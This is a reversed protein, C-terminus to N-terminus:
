EKFIYEAGYKDIYYVTLSKDSNTVTVKALSNKFKSPSSFKYDTVFNGNENVFAYYKLEKIVCMMQNEFGTLSEIKPIVNIIKGKSDFLYTSDNKNLPLINESFDNFWHNLVKYEPQIIWNGSTDIVGFKENKSVVARNNIFNFVFDYQAEIVIKGQFNMFGYKKEDATFGIRNENAPYCLRVNTKFLINGLHDMIGCLGEKFLILGAKENLPYAYTIDKLIIKGFEANFISHYSMNEDMLGYYPGFIHESYNNEKLPLVWKKTQVNYIGSKLDQTLEIFSGHLSTIGTYLPKVLVQLQYNLLGFNGNEDTIVFDNEENPMLISYPTSIRNGKADILYKEKVKLDWVLAKGNEFPEASYFQAPIIVTKASDCYGWKNNQVFPILDPLKQSRLFNTLGFFIILFLIRM